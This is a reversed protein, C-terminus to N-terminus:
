KPTIEIGFLHFVVNTASAYVVIFDGAGLTIGLTLGYTSNGALSYDYLIANTQAATSGSPVVFVRVTQATANTNCIALTSVVTQTKSPTTYLTTNSTAAPSEQELIKATEVM